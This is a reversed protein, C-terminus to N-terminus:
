HDDIPPCGEVTPCGVTPCDVILEIHQSEALAGKLSAVEEEEKTLTNTLTLLADDNIDGHQIFSMIRKIKEQRWKSQICGLTIDPNRMDKQFVKSCFVSESLWSFLFNEQRSRMSDIHFDSLPPQFSKGYTTSIIDFNLINHFITTFSKNYVIDQIQMCNKKDSGLVGYNCRDFDHDYVRGVENSSTLADVFKDLFDLDVKLTDLPVDALDAEQGDEEMNVDNSQSSLKTPQHFTDQFVTDEM